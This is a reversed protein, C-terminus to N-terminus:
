SDGMDTGEIRSLAKSLNDINIKWEGTEEDRNAISDDRLENLYEIVRSEDVNLQNSFHAPRLTPSKVSELEYAYRQGILHILLKERWPADEYEDRLFITGDRNSIHFLQSANEFYRELLSGTDMVTDFDDTDPNVTELGRDNAVSVLERDASAFVLNDVEESVALAASLQLSDLTRLDDELILDFSHTFLAEETTVILFDSLAEDFFAALLEDVVKEPIDDRNYKRRFASVVEIATIATVVVKTGNSEILRDVTGTGLEDYYRKVLASTDFFLSRM